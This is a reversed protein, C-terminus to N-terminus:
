RLFIRPAPGLPIFGMAMRGDKFSVTLDLGTTQGTMQALAKLMQEAQPRFSSPLYGANEAMDLMVPWNEAKISVDGTPQGETDVKLDGTALISVDGWVFKALKLAITRPQPRRRELARRDWIEDFGVTMDATFTAFALPWDDPVGLFARPVAGPTMNTTDVKLDYVPQGSSQQIMSLHIDDAGAVGGLATELVWAGAKFTVSQVPLSPGPRLRLDAQANKAILSARLSPSALTIPTEPLVVTVYGPWYVPALIDFQDMSVAVGAAPDAFAVDHLRANLRTPFGKKEIERVDAQWGEARRAEVWKVIGRQLGASAVAWWGCWLLAFVVIVSVLKGM